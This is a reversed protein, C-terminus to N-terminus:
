LINYSRIAKFCSQFMKPRAELEADKAELHVAQISIHFGVPLLTAKLILYINRNGEPLEVYSNFIVMSITSKALQFITSREM